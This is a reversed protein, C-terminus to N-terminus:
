LIIVLSIGPSSECTFMIEECLSFIVMAITVYDRLFYKITNNFSRYRTSCEYIFNMDVRLCTIDEISCEFLFEMDVRM